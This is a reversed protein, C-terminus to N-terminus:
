KSQLPSKQVTRSEYHLTVPQVYTASLLAYHISCKESPLQYSLYAAGNREKSATHTPEGTMIIKNVFLSTCLFKFNEILIPVM